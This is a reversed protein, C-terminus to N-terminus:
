DTVAIRSLRSRIAYAIFVAIVSAQALLSQWTSKLGIWDIEFTISLPSIGIIAAEQLAIVGKGTLVFSLGVLLYTTVSFFRGIPLRISYRTMIWAVVTLCLTGALFGSIITPTQSPLSQTLLAEYFLVTEFVERYVAIFALLAIGWLTGAKLRQTVQKQIYAKWQAAQIKSHMWVGVYFLVAAATLAAVGEMVERSAGSISILSRAAWWTIGGAVLASVWGAHVYKLADGRDSRILVMALALTVLLAELGERLLIILSASFLTADSLADASLLQEAKELQALTSNLSQQLKNKDDADRFQKRLAMMNAEIQKRLDSDRTDLSNEVLEFGDLYASVALRNAEEFQNNEYATRAAVLQTRAMSLPSKSASFLVKPSARRQEVKKLMDSDGNALQSPSHNILGELTLDPASIVEGAIEDFALSGAYFALSWRQQESLQDYAAMSTEDIGNSIADYLGLISRNLARARDTFDTPPPELGVSAPGNGKGQDGHCASCHSQFLSQTETTALLQQPLTTQPMHELLDSRLQSCLQQIVIPSQKKHIATELTLARSILTNVGSSKAQTVLISSFELMEQYEGENIVEGNDVAELYDVGVYEALQAM